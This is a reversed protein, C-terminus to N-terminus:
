IRGARLRRDADVQAGGEGHQGVDIRSATRDRHGIPLAIQQGGAGHEEVVVVHDDAALGPFARHDIGVRKGFTELPVHANRGIPPLNAAQIHRGLHEAGEHQCPHFLVGFRPEPRDLLRDDGHGREEVLRPAPGRLFRALQGTQFHQVDDVLGRGGRHGEAMLVAEEVQPGAARLLREAHQNVVQAAARKVHGHQLDGARLETGQGGVAVHLEAAAVEVLPQHGMQGFLELGGVADIRPAIRLVGGLKPEVGGLGLMRQGLPGLGVDDAEMRADAEPLLNRPLLEFVHGAVEQLPSFRSGRLHHVLGPQGPVLDVANQQHAACGAHRHDDVHEAAHRALLGSRDIDGSSTTAWPAANYASISMPRPAPVALGCHSSTLTLECLRPTTPKSLFSRCFILTSRQDGLVRRQRGPRRPVKTM